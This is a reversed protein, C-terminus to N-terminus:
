ESRQGEKQPFFVNTVSNPRAKPTESRLNHREAYLDDLKQSQFEDAVTLHVPTPSSKARRFAAEVTLGRGSGESRRIFYGVGENALSSVGAAADGKFVGICWEFKMPQEM